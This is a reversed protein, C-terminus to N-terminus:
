GKETGLVGSAELDAMVATTEILSSFGGSLAALAGAQFLQDATAGAAVARAGHTLMSSSYRITASAAFLILERYQEPIDPKGTIHGIYALMKEHAVPDHKAVLDRWSQQPTEAASALGSTKDDSM